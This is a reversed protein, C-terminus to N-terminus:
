QAAIESPNTTAKPEQATIRELAWEIASLYDVDACSYGSNIQRQEHLISQLSPVVQEPPPLVSPNSTSLWRGDTWPINASWGYATDRGKAQTDRPIGMIM